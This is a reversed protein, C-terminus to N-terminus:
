MSVLARRRSRSGRAHRPPLTPHLAVQRVCPTTSPAGPSRCPPVGGARFAADAVVQPHRPTVRRGTLHLAHALVQAALPFAPILSTDLLLELQDALEDRAILPEGARTPRGSLPPDGGRRRCSRHNGLVELDGGAAVVVATLAAHARVLAALVEVPPKGDGHLVESVLRDIRDVFARDVVHDVREELLAVGDVLGGGRARRQGLVVDVGAGSAGMLPPSATEGVARDVLDDAGDPRDELVRHAMADHVEVCRAVGFAEDTLFARPAREQLGELGGGHKVGPASEFGVAPAQRPFVHM